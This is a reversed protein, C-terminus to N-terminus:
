VHDTKDEKMAAFRKKHSESIKRRHELTKPINKMNQKAEESRPKSMKKLTEKSHTKGLMGNERNKSAEGIKKKTEESHKFGRHSEGMKKRQDETRTQGKLKSARKEITECSQPKGIKALRLKEFHEKNYEQVGHKGKNWPTTGFMHFGKRPLHRNYGNPALTNFEIIKENEGDLMDDIDDYYMLIEKQFNEKGLLKYDEDLYKSSGWYGDTNSDEKYCVKSGVYQKDNVLNTIIYVYYFNPNKKM